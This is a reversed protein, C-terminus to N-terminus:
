LIRVSKMIQNDRDQMHETIHLYVEKTIRSDAHGLRRSITELPVGAEALMATHTHRLAHPTLRRGLLAECNERFYKSYVDYKIYGGGEHPLFLNSRYALQLQEMRTFSFIEKCCRLLEDQIYVDRMSTDTKASSLVGPDRAYTKTIHIERQDLDVDSQNLAIAEGIRLGSLILFETLLKWRRVRMGDLLKKIEDHELYKYKDKERVSPEKARQLKDLYAIDAVLDARYAWRMLAKFHKLRENYTCGEPNDSSFRDAVYPATLRCALTDAGILRILTHMYHESSRATQVKDNKYQWKVRRDTLEAFTIQDPAASQATLKAIKERLAIGAVVDDSKKGTATITVSVARSAGTMPDTYREFYRVRKGNAKQKWM